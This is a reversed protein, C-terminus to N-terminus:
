LLSNNRWRGFFFRFGSVLSENDKDCIKIFISKTMFILLNEKMMTHAKNIQEHLVFLVRWLSEAGMTSSLEFVAIVTRVSLTFGTSWGSLVM